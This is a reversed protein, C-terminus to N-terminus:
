PAGCLPQSKMYESSCNGTYRYGASIMCRQHQASQRKSSQDGNEGARREVEKWSFSGDSNGGCTVWDKLRREATMDDKEWYHLYPKPHMLADRTEKPCYTFLGLPDGSACSKYCAALVSCLWLILCFNVIKKM